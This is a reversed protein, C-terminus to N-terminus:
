DNGTSSATAVIATEPSQIFLPVSLVAFYALNVALYSFIIVPIAILLSIPITVRPRRVEGALLNV